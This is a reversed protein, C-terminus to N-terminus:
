NDLRGRMMEKSKANIKPRFTCDRLEKKEMEMKIEALKGYKERVKSGDGLKEWAAEPRKLHKAYASIEPQMTVEKLEDREREERARRSNEKRAEMRQSAEAYLRENYSSYEGATRNRMLERSVKSMVSKRTNKAAQAAMVESEEKQKEITRERENKEM